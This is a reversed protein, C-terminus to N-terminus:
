FLCSILEVLTKTARANKCGGGEFFSCVSRVEEAPLLPKEKNSLSM